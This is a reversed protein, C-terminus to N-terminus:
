CKLSKPIAANDAEWSGGPLGSLSAPLNSCNGPKMTERYALHIVYPMQM